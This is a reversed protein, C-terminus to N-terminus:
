LFYGGPQIYDVLAAIKANWGVEKDVGVVWVLPSYPFFKNVDLKTDVRMGKDYDYDTSDFKMTKM